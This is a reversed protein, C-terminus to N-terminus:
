VEKREHMLYYCIMHLATQQTDQSVGMGVAPIYIHPWNRLMVGGTQGIVGLVSIGMSEAQTCARLINPSNGSGSIAILLDGKAGQVRLQSSFSTKYEEDNAYTTVASIDTLPLARVGALQLDTAMHSALTASGGNGILWVREALIIAECAAQLEEPSIGKLADQLQSLYQTSFQPLTM